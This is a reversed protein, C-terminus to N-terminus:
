KDYTPLQGDLEHALLTAQRVRDSMGIGDRIAGALHLGPHLTELTSIQTLRAESSAEYQPIAYRHRFIRILDPECDIGLLRRLRDSVIQRIEEDSADILEPSRMGGLFISLLTGGKPARDPFCASPNLIGLLQKDELSPVLGGFAHFHPLSLERKGWSVQVVPAYRLSLIPALDTESLFPLLSQLQPATCTTVIHRGGLCHPEDAQIYRAKWHGEPHPTLSCDSVGLHIRERGIM